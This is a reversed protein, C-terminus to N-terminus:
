AWYTLLAPRLRRAAVPNHFLGVWEAIDLVPTPPAPHVASLEEASSLGAQKLYYGVLTEEVDSRNKKSLQERLETVSQADVEEGTNHNIFRSTYPFLSHTFFKINPDYSFKKNQYKFIEEYYDIADDYHKWEGLMAPPTIIVCIRDNKKPKAGEMEVDWAGVVTILDNAKFGAFDKAPVRQLDNLHFSRDSSPKAYKKLLFDRYSTGEMHGLRKESDANLVSGAEAYSMEMGFGLVKSVRTGM